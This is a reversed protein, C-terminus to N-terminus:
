RPPSSFCFRPLLSAACCLLLTGEQAPEHFWSSFRSQTRAPTGAADSSASTSTSAHGVGPVRVGLVDSDAM